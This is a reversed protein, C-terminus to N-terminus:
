LPGISVRFYEMSTRRLGHDEEDERPVIVGAKLHHIAVPQTSQPSVRGRWAQSFYV